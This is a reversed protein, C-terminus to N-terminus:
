AAKSGTRAGRRGSSGAAPLPTEGSNPDTRFRTEAGERSGGIRDQGVRINNQVHTVGQVSEACDEARRRTERNEVTGSLTVESNSVAVEIESADVWPDDTLRQCVDEHIREDSRTYDKPGRGRHEAARM